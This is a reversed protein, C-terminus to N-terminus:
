GREPGVIQQTAASGLIDKAWTYENNKATLPKLIEAYGDLAISVMGDAVEFRRRASGTVDAIESESPPKDALSMHDLLWRASKLNTALDCVPPTDFSVDEIRHAFLNRIKRVIDIDDRIDKPIIAMLYAIECRASLTSLPGYTDFMKATHTDSVLLKQLLTRLQDELLSAALIAASRDSESRFSRSIRFISDKSIDRMSSLLGVDSNVPRRSNM